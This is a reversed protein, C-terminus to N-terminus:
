KLDSRGMTLNFKMGEFQKSAKIALEMQAATLANELNLGAISPVRASTSAVQNIATDDEPKQWSPRDMNLVWTKFVNSETPRGKEKIMSVLEKTSLEPRDILIKAAIRSVVPTAMSTGSMLSYMNEKKSCTKYLTMIMEKRGEIASANSVWKKTIKDMKCLNGNTGENLIEDMFKVLFPCRDAPSLSKLEFGPAFVLDVNNLPVNTFTTKRGEKTTAGVCLVNDASIGCPYQVRADNDSWGGDNGAAGVFLIDPHQEIISRLEETVIKVYRNFKQTEEPGEGNPRSFSGGLSLNIIRVKRGQADRYKAVREVADRFNQVFRDREGTNNDKKDKQDQFYPLVRFPVLGIEPTDYTMLGAVHTGHLTSGDELELGRFAQTYRELQPDIELLTKQECEMKERQLAIKKNFDEVSTDKLIEDQTEQRREQIDYKNTDVVRYSAWEDNAYYDYGCAIPQGAENLDFHINDKLDPHNYDVGTDFIAVLVKHNDNIAKFDRPTPTPNGIVVHEPRKSIITQDLELCGSFGAIAFTVLLTSILSQNRKQRIM